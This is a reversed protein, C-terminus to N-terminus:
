PCAGQQTGHNPSETQILPEKPTEPLPKPPSFQKEFIDIAEAGLSITDEEDYSEEASVDPPVLRERGDETGSSDSSSSSSSSSPSSSSSEASHIKGGSSIGSSSGMTKSMLLKIKERLHPDLASLPCGSVDTGIADEWAISFIQTPEPADM